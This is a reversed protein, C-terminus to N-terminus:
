IEGSLSLACRAPRRAFCFADPGLRQFERIGTGSFLHYCSASPLDAVIEPMPVAGSSVLGFYINM